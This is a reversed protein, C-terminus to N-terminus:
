VFPNSRKEIGITTTGMHGPYVQTNDPLVFLKEHISKKIQPYSGGPFDTRGISLQFLTDGSFLIDGVLICMGGPTHGPTHIFKLEMDGIKLTDCDNVWIDAVLSLSKGCCELSANMLPDALLESEYTCAILKVNKFENQIFSIGGIHDGHGHTLIIYQIDCGDKEIMNLLGANYGGPDVVFGINNKEDRVYYTNVGLMGTQVCKIEM